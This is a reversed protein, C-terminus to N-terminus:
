SPACNLQTITFKSIKYVLDLTFLVFEYSIPEYSYWNNLAVSIKTNSTTSDKIEYFIDTKTNDKLNTMQYVLKDSNDFQPSFGFPLSIFEIEITNQAENM